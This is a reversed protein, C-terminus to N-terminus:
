SALNRLSVDSVNTAMGEAVMGLKAMLVLNAQSSPAQTDVDDATATWVMM